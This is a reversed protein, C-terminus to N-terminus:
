WIFWKGDISSRNLFVLNNPKTWPECKSNNHILPRECIVYDASPPSPTELHKRNIVPPPPPNPRQNRLWFKWKKGIKTICIPCNKNIVYEFNENKVLEFFINKAWLSWPLMFRPSFHNESFSQFIKVQFIKPGLWNEIRVEQISLERKRARTAFPLVPKWSRMELPFGRTWIRIDFPLQPSRFDFFYKWSMIILTAHFM